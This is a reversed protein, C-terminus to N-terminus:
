DTRNAHPPEKPRAHRIGRKAEYHKRKGLATEVVDRLITGECRCVVRPPWPRVDLITVVHITASSLTVCYRVRALDYGYREPLNSLRQLAERKTM